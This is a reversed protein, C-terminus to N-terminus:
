HCGLVPIMTIKPTFNCSAGCDSTAEKLGSTLDGKTTMQYKIGTKIEWLLGIANYLAVDTATYRHQEAGSNKYVVEFLEDAFQNTRDCDIGMTFFPGNTVDLGLSGHHSSFSISQNSMTCDAGNFEFAQGTLRWDRFQVPHIISAKPKVYMQYDWDILCERSYKRM